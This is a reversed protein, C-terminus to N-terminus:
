ISARMANTIPATTMTTTRNTHRVPMTTTSLQRTTAPQRMVTVMTM